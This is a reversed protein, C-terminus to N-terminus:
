AGSGGCRSCLPLLLPGRDRDRKRRPITAGCKTCGFTSAGPLGYREWAVAPAPRYLRLDSCQEIQDFAVRRGDDSEIWELYDWENADNFVALRWGNSASYEVVGSYILQPEGVPTLKVSGDEIASLLALIDSEPISFEM